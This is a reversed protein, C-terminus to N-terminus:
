KFVRITAGFHAAKLRKRPFAVIEDAVIRPVPARIHGGIGLHFIVSDIRAHIENIVAAM